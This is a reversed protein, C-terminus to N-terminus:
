YKLGDAVVATLPPDNSGPLQYLFPLNSRNHLPALALSHVFIPSCFVTLHAPLTALNSKKIRDHGNLRANPYFKETKQGNIQSEERKNTIKIMEFLTQYARILCGFSLVFSLFWRHYLFRCFICTGTKEGFTSIKGNKQLKKVEFTGTKRGSKKSWFPENKARKKNPFLAGFSSNTM